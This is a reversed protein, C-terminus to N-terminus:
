RDHPRVEGTVFGQSARPDGKDCAWGGGGGICYDNWGHRRMDKNVNTVNDTAHVHGGFYAVNVRPNKLLNLFERGKGWWRFWTTPYHTVVILQRHEAEAAEIRERLLKVAAAGRAELTSRCKALNCGRWEAESETCTEKGCAIWPCTKRHDVANTDLAVIELNVGPLPSAYFSM